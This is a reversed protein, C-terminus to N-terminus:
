EGELLRRMDPVEQDLHGVKRVYNDDDPTLYVIVEGALHLDPAHYMLESQLVTYKITGIQVRNGTRLKIFDSHEM